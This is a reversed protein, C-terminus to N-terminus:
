YTSCFTQTGLKNCYTQTPLNANMQNIQDQQMQVNENHLNIQQQKKHIAAALLNCEADTPDSTNKKLWNIRANLTSRDYTNYSLVGEMYRQGTASVEPTIVGRKTCAQIAIWGKGIETYQADSMVPKPQTACGVLVGSVLLMTFLTKM